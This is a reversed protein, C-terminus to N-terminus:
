KINLLDEADDINDIIQIRKTSTNLLAIPYYDRVGGLFGQKKSWSSGLNKTQVTGVQILAVEHGNRYAKEMAGKHIHGAVVIDADKHLELARKHAHTLNFSSKFRAISHFPMIKYEIGNVNLKIIGGQTILPINLERILFEYVDIGATQYVWDVHSPDNTVALIEDQYETFFKKLAVLQTQPTVVDTMLGETHRGKPVFFDGLDGIALARLNDNRYFSALLEELADYDVANSGIHFDGIPRVGFWKYPTDINIELEDKWLSETRAFESMEKMKGLYESFTTIGFKHKPKSITTEAPSRVEREEGKSNIVLRERM